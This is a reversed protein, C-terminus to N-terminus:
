FNYELGVGLTVSHRDYKNVKDLGTVGQFDHQTSEVADYFTMMCGLNLKIKPSVAFAGGLGVSHSNMNYNLESHAEPNLSFVTRQYAASLELRPTVYAEAGFIYENSGSEEAKSFSNKADTDFYHHWQGTLKLYGVNQGFRYSIAQTLLAPMEADVKEGDPFLGFQDIKTNNKLKIASKFEYKGSYSWSGNTYAVAFNPSFAVGWQKANLERDIFPNNPIPLDKLLVGNATIDRVHGDYKAYGINSRIQAAVAFHETLKYAAGFQVSATISTGKLYMDMDYKAGPFVSQTGLGFQAVYDSLGDKFELSGGGGGVSVSGMLALSNKKWVFDISPIIPSLTKGKFDLTTAGNSKEYLAFPAFTSTTVRDQIAVQENFGWHIGENMFVTGAPNFYVADVATTTGRAMDRLFAAGHNTNTMLGGAQMGFAAALALM